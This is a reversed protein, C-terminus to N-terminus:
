PNANGKIGPSSIPRIAKGGIVSKPTQYPNGQFDKFNLTFSTNNNSVDSESTKSLVFTLIGNVRAGKAIPVQATKLVLDEKALDVKTGNTGPMDVYGSVHVPELVTPFRRSPSNVGLNWGQATSPSGANRVSVVLSVALDEQHNPVPYMSVNEIRGALSPKEAVVKSDPETKTQITPDTRTDPRQSTRCAGLVLALIALVLIFPRSVGPLNAPRMGHNDSSETKRGFSLSAEKGLTKLRRL